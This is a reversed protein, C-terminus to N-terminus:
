SRAGGRVLGRDLAPGGGRPLLRHQPGGGLLARRRRSAAYNGLGVVRLNARSAIAYIDFDTFSLLVSAAVPVFFFAAIAALAPAVFLWGPSM